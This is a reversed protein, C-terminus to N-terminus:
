ASKTVRSSATNTTIAAEESVSLSRALITEADTFDASSRPRPFETRVMARLGTSTSFLWTGTTAGGAPGTGGGSVMTSTIVPPQAAVAPGTVITGDVALHNTWTVGGGTVTMTNGGSVAKNFLTFSQGATLPAGLNTVTITGTGTNVLTGTVSVLDSSSGNVRFFGGGTGSSDRICM